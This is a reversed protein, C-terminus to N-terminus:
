VVNKMNLTQSSVEAPSNYIKEPIKEIAKKVEKDVNNKDAQKIIEYKKAPFDVGMIANEIDNTTIKAM